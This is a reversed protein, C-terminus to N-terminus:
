ASLPALSAWTSEKKDGLGAFSFVAFGALKLNKRVQSAASYTTLIGRENISNKVNLFWQTEWLEPNKKPSFADQYIVHFMRSYVGNSLAPFVKTADGMLIALSINGKQWVWFRNGGSEKLNLQFNSHEKQFLEILEEDKELSVFTLKHGPHNKEIYEKTCLFGCGTGFGVELVCPEECIENKLFRDLANVYCHITESHAGANSHCAEQYKESFLTWSGDLTQIKRYSSMAWLSFIVQLSTM